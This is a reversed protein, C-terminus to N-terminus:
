HRIAQLTYAACSFRDLFYAARAKSGSSTGILDPHVSILDLIALAPVGIAALLLTIPLIQLALITIKFENFGVM